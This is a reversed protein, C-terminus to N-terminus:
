RRRRVPRPPGRRVHGRAMGEQCAGKGHALPMHYLGVRRSAADADRRTAGTVAHIFVRYDVIHRAGSVGAHRSTNRHGWSSDLAVCRQEAQQPLAERMGAGREPQHGGLPWALVRRILASARCHRGRKAKVGVVVQEM